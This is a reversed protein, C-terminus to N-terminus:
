LITDPYSIGMSSVKPFKKPDSFGKKSAWGMMVAYNGTWYLSIEKVKSSSNAIVESCIDVKKWVWFEVKFGDLAEKIVSDRHCKDGHDIVTVKAIRRVGNARLWHFIARLDTNVGSPLGNNQVSSQNTKHGSNGSWWLGPGHLRKEGLENPCLSRHNSSSTPYPWM